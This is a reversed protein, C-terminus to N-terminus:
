ISPKEPFAALHLYALSSGEQYVLMDDGSIDM